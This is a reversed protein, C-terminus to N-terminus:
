PGLKRKIAILLGSSASEVLDLVQDFGEKGGYYPDPVEDAQGSEDFELFLRMEATARGGSLQHLCALNDRDMALVYDFAM